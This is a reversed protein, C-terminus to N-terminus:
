NRMIRRYFSRGWGILKENEFALPTLRSDQLSSGEITWGDTLYMWFEITKDEIARTEKKRPKGMTKLVQDKTMGVNLSFIAARNRQAEERTKDVTGECGALLLITLIPLIIRSM